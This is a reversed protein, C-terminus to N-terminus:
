GQAQARGVRAVGSRNGGFGRGNGGGSSMGNVSRMGQGREM